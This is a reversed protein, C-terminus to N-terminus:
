DSDRIRDTIKRKRQRWFEEMSTHVIRGCFCNVRADDPNLTTRKFRIGRQKTGQLYRCIKKIANAHSQKPQHTYRACAHVAQQIDPRTHTLYMMMGLVSAYDWDEDILEGDSDMGLYDEKAPTECSNCNQLGVTRLIKNTLGTQSLEVMEGSMNIEIGLYGHM